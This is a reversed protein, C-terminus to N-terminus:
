NVAWPLERSIGLQWIQNALWDSLIGAGIYNLHKADNWCNDTLQLNDNTITPIFLVNRKKTIGELPVIFLNEYSDISGNVYYKYYDKQVPIEVIVVELDNGALDVIEKLGLFDKHMLKKENIAEWVKIDKVFNDFKKFYGFETINSSITDIYDRTKPNLDALFGLYLRYTMSNEKLFGSVNWNGLQYQIWGDKNLDRNGGLERSYDRPSTGFILLKPKYRSVIIKSLNGATEGTLSDVGFNFCNLKKGSLQYYAKTFVEPDIGNFVMSSGIFICDIPENNETMKNLMNIKIDLGPNSSGILPKSILRLNIFLRIFCEGAIISILIILISNLLVKGFTGSILLTKNEMSINLKRNYNM